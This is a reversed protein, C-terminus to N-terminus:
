SQVDERTVSFREPEAHFTLHCTLFWGSGDDAAEVHLVAAEDPTVVTLTEGDYSLLFDWGCAPCNAAIM